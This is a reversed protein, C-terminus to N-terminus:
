RNGRPKRRAVARVTAVNSVAGERDEVTYRFLVGGKRMRAPTYTISGNPNVVATGLRPKKVLRVSKKALKGDRDFDNATVRIVIEGPRTPAYIRDNLALPAANSRLALVGVGYSEDAGRDVAGGNPRDQNDFDKLLESFGANLAGSGSDIAPPASPIGKRENAHHSCPVFFEGGRCASAHRM